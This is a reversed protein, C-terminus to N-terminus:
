QFKQEVLDIITADDLTHKIGFEDVSTLLTLYGSLTGNSTDSVNVKLRMVMGDTLDSILIARGSCSDLIPLENTIGDITVVAYIDLGKTIIDKVGTVRVEFESDLELPYLMKSNDVLFAYVDTQRRGGTSYRGIKVDTTKASYKKLDSPGTVIYLWEDLTGTYGQEVAIEYASKGHIGPIGQDGQPGVPGVISDSNFANVISYTFSADSGNISFFTDQGTDLSQYEYQRLVMGEKTPFQCNGLVNINNVGINQVTFTHGAPVKVIFNDKNRITEFVSMQLTLGNKRSIPYFHVTVTTKASAKIYLNDGGLYFDLIRNESIRFGSDLYNPPTNGLACNVVVKNDTTGNQVRIVSYYTM